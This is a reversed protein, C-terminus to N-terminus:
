APNSSDAAQEDKVFKKAKADYSFGKTSLTEKLETFFPVKMVDPLEKSATLIADVDELTEVEAVKVRLGELQEKAKRQAESKSQIASKVQKIIRAMFTPFEPKSVDPIVLPELEAVNKTVYNDSPTFDIVSEKNRIRIFGVQDAIRLLLDKSQGTCDPSHKITDGEATEKDHCIFIIDQGNARLLNVFQKFEDAMQGFRKLANTKLKYNQDCVYVALYDDLMAKATDVIVTKYQKITEMESTIDTWKQATITDVRQVARDFGRDTDILIPNEATTSTSTKKSGPVGYLVIIVPREPTVDNAKIIPM